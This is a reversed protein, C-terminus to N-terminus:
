DPCVPGLTAVWAEEVPANPSEGYGVVVVGDSSIGTAAQLVWGSPVLEGLEDSVARARRTRADWLSAHGASAGVVIDGLATTANATELPMLGELAGGDLRWRFAQAGSASDGSGVVVSGDANVATARSSTGEPLVGLDLLDGSATWRLARTGGALPSAYGVTVEGDASVGLARTAGLETPVALQLPGSAATWRFAVNPDGSWGVFASGDASVALARGSFIPRAREAAQALYVSESRSFRNDPEQVALEGYGVVVAGDTSAATAATPLLVLVGRELNTSRAFREPSGDDLRWLMGEDVSFQARATGVVLTGDGSIGLAHSDTQDSGFGLGRFSACAVCEGSAAACVLGNGCPSPDPCCLQGRMGCRAPAGSDFGTGSESPETPTRVDPDPAEALQSATLTCYGTANCALGSPCGGDSTCRLEFEWCASVLWAGGLAVLARPSM